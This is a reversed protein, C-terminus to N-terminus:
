RKPKMEPLVNICLENTLHNQGVIFKGMFVNDDSIDGLEWSDADGILKACDSCDNPNGGPNFSLHHKINNLKNRVSEPYNKPVPSSIIFRYDSNFIQKTLYSHNESMYKDAETISIYSNTGIYSLLNKMGENFLFDNNIDYTDIFVIPNDSINLNDINQLQEKSNIKTVDNLRNEPIKSILEDNEGIHICTEDNYILQLIITNVLYKRM